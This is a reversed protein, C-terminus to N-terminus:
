RGEEYLYDHARSNTVITPKNKHQYSQTQVEYIFVFIPIRKYLLKFLLINLNKFVSGTSIGFESFKGVSMSIFIAYLLSM